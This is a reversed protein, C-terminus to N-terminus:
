PEEITNLIEDIISDEKVKEIMAEYTLIIRHRLVEKAIVKVDNPIVYNRNNLWAIAKSAIALNISGRPSSGYEVNRKLNYKEPNRTADVIKAIYEQIVPDLYVTRVENQFKIIEEKTLVKEIKEVKNSSYRELIKMEDELEPYSVIIKFMFRDLEAEPLQYTGQNEIPNQTAFVFFPLDLKFTQNGITVQKEQMAELLASQVKPPSRNIEDALIFNAFIPGKKVVFEREKNIIETGIIDSPLLDPTFQIRSFSLDLAKAMTNVLLTKALGPVGEILVHGNSLLAVITKVILEDQGYVNKHIEDILEVIKENKIKIGDIIKENKKSNKKNEKISDKTKM